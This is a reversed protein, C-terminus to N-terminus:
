FYYLVAQNQTQKYASKTYLSCHYIILLKNNKIIKVIAALYWIPKKNICFIISVNKLFINFFQM